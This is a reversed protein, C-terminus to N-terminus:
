PMASLARRATLRATIAAIAAAVLPLTSLAAWAMPRLSLEGSRETEASAALWFFVLLTAAGLVLGIAGGVMATRLARHAVADVIGKDDSGLLHLIEITEQKAALRAQTAFVVTAALTGALVLVVLLALGEIALMLRLVPARTTYGGDISAEPLGARLRERISESLSRADAALEVDIVLPLAMGSELGSPGLWPQLMAMLKAEPVPEARAVEPFARIAALARDIVAQRAEQAAPVALQVTLRGDREARWREASGGVLLVAALAIIALFVLVAILAPVFGGARDELATAAASAM